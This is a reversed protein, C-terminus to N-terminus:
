TLFQDDEREPKTGWRVALIFQLAEVDGAFAREILLEELADLGDEKANRLKVAFEPHRKCRVMVAHRKIGYQRCCWNVDGCAALAALFPEGWDDLPDYM